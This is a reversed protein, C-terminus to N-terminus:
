KFYVEKLSKGVIDRHSLDIDPKKDLMGAIKMEIELREVKRHFRKYTPSSKLANLFTIFWQNNNIDIVDSIPQDSRINLVNTYSAIPNAGKVLQTIMDTIGLLLPLKAARMFLDIVNDHKYLLEYIKIVNEFDRYVLGNGMGGRKMDEEVLMEFAVPDIHSYAALVHKAKYDSKGVISVYKLQQEKTLVIDKEYLKINIFRTSNPALKKNAHYIRQIILIILHKIEKAPLTDVYAKLYPQKFGYKDAFTYITTKTVPQKYDRLHSKLKTYILKADNLVVALRDKVLDKHRQSIPYNQSYQFLLMAFKDKADESQEANAELLYELIYESLQINSHRMLMGYWKVSNKKFVSNEINAKIINEFLENYIKYDNRTLEDIGHHYGINIIRETVANIIEEKQTSNSYVDVVSKINSSYIALKFEYNETFENIHKLVTDSVEYTNKYNNLFKAICVISYKSSEYHYSIRCDKDSLSNLFFMLNYDFIEFTTNDHGTQAIVKALITECFDIKKQHSVNLSLLNKILDNLLPNYKKDKFLAIIDEPVLSINVCLIGHNNDSLLKKYFDNLDKTNSIDNKLIEYKDLLLAFDGSSILQQIWELNMNFVGRDNRKMEDIEKPSDNEEAIANMTDFNLKNKATGGVFDNLSDYWTVIEPRNEDLRGLGIMKADYKPYFSTCVPGDNGGFLVIGDYVSEREDQFIRKAEYSIGSNRIDEDIADTMFLSTESLKNIHKNFKSINVENSEYTTFIKMLQDKIKWDKGHVQKALDKACILFNSIDIEFVLCINGYVSAINPNFKYCTYLGMGHHDGAGPRFGTTSTYPDGLIDSIVEEEIESIKMPKNRQKNHISKLIRKARTDDKNVIREPNDPKELMKIYSANKKDSWWKNHRTLHYCTLKNNEFNVIQPNLNSVKSETLLWRISKNM